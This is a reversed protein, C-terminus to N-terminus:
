LWMCFEDVCVCGSCPINFGNHASTRETVCMCVSLVNNMTYIYMYYSCSTTYM